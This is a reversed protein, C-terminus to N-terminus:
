LNRDLYARIGDRLRADRGAFFHDAGSMKEQVSQKHRLAEARQPANGVVHPLDHEGYLDYIPLNIGALDESGPMSLMVWANVPAPAQRSLYHQTMRCGLSHSVIAIKRYGKAKLDAVARQLREAAEDFTPAYQAPKADAALIPMQISLTAYGMEPLEQRLMGILGWDPHVGIGHVVVLAGKANPVPTYLGLFRHGNAQELYVPDGVLVAPLLEDAWKKERAYDSAALAPLTAQLGFLLAFVAFSRRM